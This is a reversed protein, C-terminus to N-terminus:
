ALIEQPVAIGAPWTVTYCQCAWYENPFGLHIIRLNQVEFYVAVFNTYTTIKFNFAPLIAGVVQKPFRLVYSANGTDLWRSTQYLQCPLNTYTPPNLTPDVGNTWADALQNFDPLAYTPM